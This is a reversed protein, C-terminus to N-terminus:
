HVYDTYLSYPLHIYDDWLLFNYITHFKHLCYAFVHDQHFLFLYTKNM